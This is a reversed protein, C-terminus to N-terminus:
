TSVTITAPCFTVNELRAHRPPARGRKWVESVSTVYLDVVFLSSESPWPVVTDEGSGSGDVLLEIGNTFRRLGFSVM